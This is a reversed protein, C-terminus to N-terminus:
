INIQKHTSEISMRYLNNLNNQDSFLNELIKTRENGNKKDIVNKIILWIQRVISISIFDIRYRNLSM